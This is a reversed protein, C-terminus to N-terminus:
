LGGALAGPALQCEGPADDGRHALLEGRGVHEEVGCLLDDGLLEIELLAVADHERATVRHTMRTVGVEDLNDLDSLCLLFLTLAVRQREKENPDM